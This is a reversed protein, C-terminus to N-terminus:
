KRIEAARAEIEYTNLYYGYKVLWYLYKVTFILIGDKEIQELHKQEHKILRANNEYGPVLYITNWFSAWGKFGCLNM